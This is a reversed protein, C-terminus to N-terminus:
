TRASGCAEKDADSVLPKVKEQITGKLTLSWDDGNLSTQSM